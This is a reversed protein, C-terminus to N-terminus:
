DAVKTLSLYSSGGFGSVSTISVVTFTLRGDTVRADGEGVRAELKCKGLTASAGSPVVIRPNTSGSSSGARYQYEFTIGFATEGCKMGFRIETDTIRLRVAASESATGVWLGNLSKLDTPPSTKEAFLAEWAPDVAAGSSSSSSSSTGNVTSSQASCASVLAIGLLVLPLRSSLM